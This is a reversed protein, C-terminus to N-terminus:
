IIHEKKYSCIIREDIIVDKHFHGFFWKKYKVNTYVWSLMKKVICGDEIKYKNHGGTLIEINNDLIQESCTHTLIYDVDKNHKILNNIAYRIEETSPQERSWWSSGIVRRCKDISVAGGMCFFSNNEINYINGRRLHYTNNNLKGVTSGFKDEKPLKDLIDFNEHNGDIFLIYINEPLNSTINNYENLRETNWTFGFDGLIIYYMDSKNNINYRNKLLSISTSMEFIDAHTDGRLIVM